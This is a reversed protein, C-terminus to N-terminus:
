KRSAEAKEVRSKLEDDSYALLESVAQLKDEAIKRKPNEWNSYCKSTVGLLAAMLPQSFEHDLRFQRMDAATVVQPVTKKQRSVLIGKAAPAAVPQRKWVDLIKIKTAEDPKAIGCEWNGYRNGKSSSFGLAQVFQLQTMGLRMRQRKLNEPSFDETIPAITDPQEVPSEPEAVPLTIKSKLGNEQQWQRLIANLMENPKCYGAEWNAVTKPKTGLKEALATRSIGLKARLERVEEGDIRLDQKPEAPVVPTANEQEKTLSTQKGTPQYIGVKQMRERLESGKMDRIEYIKAGMAPFVASKGSEWRSYKCISVELLKAMQTKSFSRKMRIKKIQAPTIPPEKKEDPKPPETQANKKEPIPTPGYNNLKRVRIELEAIRQQDRRAREEMQKMWIGIDEFAKYGKLCKLAVTKAIKMVEAKLTCGAM